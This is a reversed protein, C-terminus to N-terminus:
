YVAGARSQICLATEEKIVVFDDECLDSTDEWARRFEWDGPGGVAGGGRLSQSDYDPGNNNSTDNSTDNNNNFQTTNGTTTTTTTHSNPAPVVWLSERLKKHRERDEEIRRFIDEKTIVPVADSGHTTADDIHTAHRATDRGALGADLDRCESVELFDKELM